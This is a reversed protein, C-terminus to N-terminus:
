WLLFELRQMGVTNGHLSEHDISSSSSISIDLCPTQVAPLCLLQKSYFILSWLIGHAIFAGFILQYGPYLGLKRGQFM